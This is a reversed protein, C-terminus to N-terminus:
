TIRVGALHYLSRNEYFLRICFVSNMKERV